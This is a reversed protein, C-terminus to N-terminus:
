LALPLDDVRAGLHEDGGAGLALHHEVGGGLLREVEGLQDHTGEGGGSGLLCARRYIRLTFSGSWRATSSTASHSSSSRRSSGTRSPRKSAWTWRPWSM